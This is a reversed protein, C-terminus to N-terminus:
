DEERRRACDICYGNGGDNHIGIPCGCDPCATFAREIVAADGEDYEYFPDTREVVEEEVLNDEDLDIRGPTELYSHLAVSEECFDYMEEPTWGEPVRCEQIDLTVVLEFRAEYTGNMEVEEKWLYVGDEKDWCSNDEDTYQYWVSLLCRVDLAVKAAIAAGNEEYLSLVYPHFVIDDVDILDQDDVFCGNEISIDLVANEVVERVTEEMEAQGCDSLLYARVFEAQRDILATYAIFARLTDFLKVHPRAGDSVGAAVARRFGGDNSVVCYVIDESGGGDMQGEVSRNIERVLSSVAIADKFENPKKAEFPPNQDFYDGVIKEMGIGDVTITRAGCDALLRSFEEQCAAVWVQPDQKELLAQFPPLRRFGAFARDATVKNLASVSESVREQIHARVEGEVVSNIVLVLEGRRAYDRMCQFMANHFSYNAGDYINTDLFVEYFM